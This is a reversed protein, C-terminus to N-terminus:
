AKKMMKLKERLTKRDIGLIEAAKTKNGDLNELVNAIHEMEVQELSQHFNNKGAINFRMFPPLDPVDITEGEGMIIIRQIVNELERINGPWYYNKLMELAKESIRPAARGNKKSYKEIFYSVLLLIDGGRERLPPLEINIVNLRYFLDERFVGKGVLANLNKNSAAIIRIDLKIPKRSGLMFVENEQLIRLLKVQSNPSLESIEDLFVSGGEATQLFGARSEHAGTFAGKMYGFLEGEFLNEPIAGCNIPVFPAASRPGSYHIARAALEKGTGSEGTILVTGSSPSAKGIMKFVDCMSKSQGLLGYADYPGPSSTVRSIKKTELRAMSRKVAGLLEEETFPKSLYEEAGGKVAEVAGRVTAYGTIMMVVTTKFNDHVHRVLDLGSTEPMKYDTIVLDIHEAKLTKVARKVDPATFIRYGAAALNRKIIERTEPSDDVILISKHM